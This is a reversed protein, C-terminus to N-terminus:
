QQTNSNDLLCQSEISQVGIDNLYFHLKYDKVFTYSHKILSWVPDWGNFYDVVAVMLFALMTLVAGCVFYVSISSEGVVISYTISLPTVLSLSLTGVLSSTLLCGMLWLLESLVTGIFGNILLLTWVMNDNPLHFEEWQMYDWFVIAPVLLIAMSLGVFGFFMPIELSDPETVAKSLLVLYCAYLFAGGVAYLAGYDVKFTGNNISLGVLVGGGVSIFIIILKTLSFKDRLSVRPLPIASLVLVFAGSLSSLTNVIAVNNNELARAYLYNAFFWLLGFPIAIIIVYVVPLLEVPKSNTGGSPSDNDSISPFHKVEVTRSFRVRSRRHNLNNSLTMISARQKQGQQPLSMTVEGDEADTNLQTFLSPGLM